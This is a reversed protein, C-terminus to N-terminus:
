LFSRLKEELMKSSPEVMISEDPFVITPVSRNGHNVKIVFERGQEDTDINIWKYEINLNTFVQKARRCDPCWDTGYVQIGFDSMREGKSISIGLLDALTFLSSILDINSALQHDENVIESYHDLLSALISNDTTTRATKILDMMNLNTFNKNKQQFHLKLLIAAARRACVRSRGTLGASRAKEALQYEKWFSEELNPDM